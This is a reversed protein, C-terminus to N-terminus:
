TVVIRTVPVESPPDPETWALIAVPLTTYLLTVATVVAWIEAGTHPLWLGPLLQTALVAYMAGVLVVGGSIQFARAQARHRIAEQREDPPVTVAELAESASYGQAKLTRPRTVGARRQTHFYGYRVAASLMWAWSTIVVISTMGFILAAFAGIGPPWPRGFREHVLVEALLAVYGVYMAVILRRRWTRSELRTWASNPRDVSQSVGM